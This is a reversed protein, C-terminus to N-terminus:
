VVPLGFEDLLDVGSFTFAVDEDLVSSDVDLKALITSDLNCDYLVVTQKGVTSQPDENVVTITFYTDKGTKIYKLMLKRFDSSVYYITISGTGSWGTTKSQTGRNGLTNVEEKKKEAIAELSKVYFMDIVKGDIVATAKGEQGSITDGARLVNGM